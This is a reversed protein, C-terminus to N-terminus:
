STKIVGTRDVFFTEVTLEPFRALINQRIKQHEAQHFKFEADANNNFWEFGGYAGCDHHTFLLCRKTSHLRISKGVRQVIFEFDPEDESSAFVKAGGAVAVPDYRFVGMFKLFDATTQWYGEDFCRLVFAQAEYRDTRPEQMFLYKSEGRDTWADSPHTSGSLRAAHHLAELRQRYHHGPRILKLVGLGGLVETVAPQMGVFVLHQGHAQVMRLMDEVALAATGDIVPVASLDLVVCRFRAFQRVRELRRVMDEFGERIRPDQISEPDIAPLRSM